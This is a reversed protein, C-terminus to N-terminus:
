KSAPKADRITATPRVFDTIVPGTALTTTNSAMDCADIRVYIKGPLNDPLRWSYSGTNELQVTLARWPGEPAASWSLLIPKAGFHPDYAEWQIELEGFDALARVSQLQVKPPDRDLIVQKQPLTNPKPPEGGVGAGNQITIYLGYTGDEKLEATMPSKCDEDEALLTWTKGGDLTGWLGVRGVGSPGVASIDYDVTLRPVNTYRIAAQEALANTPASLQLLMDQEVPAKATETPITGEATTNADAKGSDAEGATKDTGTETEGLPPIAPLEDTKGGNLTSGNADTLEINVDPTAQGNTAPATGEVPTAKELPFVPLTLERSQDQNAEELSFAVSNPNNSRKQGKEANDMLNDDPNPTWVPKGDKLISKESPLGTKVIIRWTPGMDLRPYEVNQADLLSVHFWYEGDNATRVNFLKPENPNQLKEKSFTQYLNWKQGLNKSAYLRVEQIQEAPRSALLGEFPLQFVRKDVPYPDPLKKQGAAPSGNAAPVANGANATGQEPSGASGAAQAQTALPAASPPVETGTQIGQGVPVGQAVSDALPASDPAPLQTGELPQTEPALM